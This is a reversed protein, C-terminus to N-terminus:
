INLPSRVSLFASQGSSFSVKRLVQTRVVFPWAIQLDNTPLSHRRLRSCFSRRDVLEGLDALTASGQEPAPPAEPGDWLDMEPIWEGAKCSQARSPPQQLSRSSRSQVNSRTHPAGRQQQRAISTYARHLTATLQEVSYSQELSWHRLPEITVKFETRQLLKSPERLSQHATSRGAIPSKARDPQVQEGVGVVQLM